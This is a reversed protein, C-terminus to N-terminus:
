RKTCLMDLAIRTYIKAATVIEDVYIWEDVTHAQDISGPGLVITPVGRPILLGALTWGASGGLVAPLGTVAEVGKSAISVIRHDPPIHVAARYNKAEDFLERDIKFEPDEDSLRKLLQEVQRDAEEPAVEPTLRSDIEIYCENPVAASWIGKWVGAEIRQVNMSSKGWISSDVQLYPLDFLGLVVRAMKQIANIGTQARGSHAARGFTKLRGRWWGRNGLEVKLESPECIVAMDADLYGADALLEWMWGGGEEGVESAFTLTGSIAIRSEKVTKLAIMVAALASKMDAAGRGYLKGDKIEAGFPDITMTEVWKTDNHGEFVLNPGDSGRLRCAVNFRDEGAKQRVPDLGFSSLKDAMFESILPGEQGTISPIRILDQALQIVEKSDISNVIENKLSM